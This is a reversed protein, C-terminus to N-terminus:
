RARVWTLEPIGSFVPPNAASHASPAAGARAVPELRPRDMHPLRRIGVVPATTVGM